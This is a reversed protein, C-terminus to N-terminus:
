KIFYALFFQDIIEAVAPRRVHRRDPEYARDYGRATVFEFSPLYIVNDREREVQGLVARLISKSETNVTLVDCDQFTRSLSVPSVTLVIPALPKRTRVLDVVALVNELNEQFTSIHLTTEKEGGGGSYAPKQAAVKGSRRNIFVETMGFTFIFATAAELGDRMARNMSAVTTALLEPTQAIILRRYPDQYGTSGWPTKARKVTWYDDPSQEWLGLMQELQLRMTFTNYFNMHEREPLTDVMAVSRDFAIDRYRPVCAIRRHTLAIRIEEAFCSGMTFFVDSGSFVPKRRITIVGDKAFEAFKTSPRDSARLRVTHAPQMLRRVTRKLM